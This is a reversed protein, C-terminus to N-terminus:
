VFDKAPWLEEPDLKRVPMEGDRTGLRDFVEQIRDGEPFVCDPAIEALPILVFRRERMYPHPITLERGTIVEQGYLLIDLDIARPGWREAKRRGLKIEINQLAALLDYPSLATKLEVVQNIFDAQGTKGWAATRYLSSCRVIETSPLSAMEQRAKRLLALSKGQNSGLGIFIRENM